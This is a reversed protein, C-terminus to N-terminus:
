AAAGPWCPAQRLLQRARLRTPLLRALATLIARGAWDPKPHTVQRRLVAVEHRLVIIETDESAQSRSLLVLWGFVQIRVLYLLRIHAFRSGAAIWRNRGIRLECTMRLTRFRYLQGAFVALRRTIM